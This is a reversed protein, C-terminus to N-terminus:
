LPLPAPAPAFAKLYSFFAQSDMARAVHHGQIGDCNFSRLLDQIVANEVGEAVTKLGLSHAMQIIARVIVADDPDSVLDRVFSQDIKLKDVDFRKLYSLSSYGTGFDDIALKVGMLKLRRVDALVKETDHLLVSETMELELCHPDFGTTNLAQTVVQVVDGRKFQVPSLNVAMMLAPMGAARWAVGQRCAEHIVWEGMPVILGTEEALAIFRGPLLLGLEPHDWRILAEVGTVQGTALEIQPQYHLVFEGREVAKRLGNKLFLHDVAQRNMQENFFRYSNRGAEKAQYMATDAKQLLTEFDQGDDPYVAVGISASSALEHGDVMFPANVHSLLKNLLPTSADASDQNGLVMLFEDGGQRCITDSERLCDRLRTAIEKLFLDGVAHGLSDNITKFNDLDLFLLAVQTQTRDAQAIAQSFRDQLLLRNPLGTLADHYALFEVQKEAIKRQTIDTAMALYGTIEGQETQLPTLTTSIQVTRGDRHQRQLEMELIYEGGMVRRRLEDSEAQKGPPLNQLPKGIAEAASWGYFQEAAPNWSTVRGMPDRTFIATPSGAIIAQNLQKETALTQNADQLALVAVTQRHWARYIFVSMLLTVLMFVSFLVGTKFVETHWPALYDVEALGVAVNFTTNPIKRYVGTRELQDSASRNSYAGELKGQKIFELIQPARIKQGLLAADGPREPVRALLDFDDNFLVFSGNPGIKLPALKQTLYNLPLTAAAVGAFSGDVHRVARALLVAMKKSQRGIVPKTIVLTLGAESRLRQFYDRDAISIQTSSSIGTGHTIRGNEDALRIGELEPTRQRRVEMFANLGAASVRGEQEQRKYENAIDLLAADITHVSASIDHQVFQALNQSDIQAMQEYQLRSQYLSFFVLGGVLLYLLIQSLALRLLPSPGSLSRTNRFLKVIKM